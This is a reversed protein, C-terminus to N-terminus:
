CSAASAPPAARLCRMVTPSCPLRSVCANCSLLGVPCAGCAPRVELSGISTSLDAAARSSTPLSGTNSGGLSAPGASGGESSVRMQGLRERLASLREAGGNSRQSCVPSLAAGPGQPPLGPSPAGYAYSGNGYGGASSPRSSSDQQAALPAPAPRQLALPPVPAPRRLPQEEPQGAAPAVSTQQQQQQQRAATAATGPPGGAGNGAEQAELAALGNEIFSKFMDSTNEIYREM